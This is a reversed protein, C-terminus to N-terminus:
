IKLQGEVMVKWREYFELPYDFGPFNERNGKDRIEHTANSM